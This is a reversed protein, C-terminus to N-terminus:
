TKQIGLTVKTAKVPPACVTSTGTPVVSMRAAVSLRTGPM